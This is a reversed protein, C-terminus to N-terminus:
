EVGLVFSVSYLPDCPDGVQPQTVDQMSNRQGGLAHSSPTKRMSLPPLLPAPSPSTARAVGQLLPACQGAHKMAVSEVFAAPHLTINHNLSVCLSVLSM